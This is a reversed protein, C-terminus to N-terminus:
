AQAMTDCIVRLDAPSIPSANLPEPQVSVNKQSIKKAKGLEEYKCGESGLWNNGHCRNIIQTRKLNGRVTGERRRSKHVKIQLEDQQQQLLWTDM